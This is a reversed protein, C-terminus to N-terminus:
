SRVATCPHLKLHKGVNHGVIGSRMLLCPTHLSGAAVIVGRKAPVWIAREQSGGAGPSQILVGDARGGAGGRTVRLVDCRMFSAGSGAADSLFTEVGSQKNGDRDGFCTWGCSKRSTDKFNQPAVKWKFNARDCGEILLSNM